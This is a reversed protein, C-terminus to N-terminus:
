KSYKINNELNLIEVDLKALKNLDAEVTPPETNGGVESANATNLKKLAESRERKLLILRDMNDCEHFIKIGRSIMNIHKLALGRQDLLIERATAGSEIADVISDLESRNGQMKPKGIHVPEGIRTNEKTCYDIAQQQTGFRPELHCTNDNLMKKVETLRMQCKLEIYCQWHEHQTGNGREKQFVAYGIRDHIFNPETWATVMWNRYKSTKSIEGNEM